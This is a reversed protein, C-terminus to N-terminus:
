PRGTMDALEYRYIRCGVGLLAVWLLLQVTSVPVGCPSPHIRGVPALM